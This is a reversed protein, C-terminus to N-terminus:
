RNRMVASGMSATSAATARTSSTAAILADIAVGALVVLAVDAPARFRVAGYFVAATLTVTIAVALFPWVGRRRAVLVFGGAIALPIVAFHALLAPIGAFKGRAELWDLKATQWPRYVQWVRGVRVSVVRPLASQHNGLYEFADARLERDRVSEDGPVETICRQDWWGVNPGYFVSDCASDAFTGGAGTSLYVPEDFRSFNYAVWPLLPVVCAVTM